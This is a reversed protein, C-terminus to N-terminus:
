LAYYYKMEHCDWDSMSGDVPTARPQGDLGFQWDDNNVLQALNAPKDDDYFYVPIDAASPRRQLCSLSTLHPFSFTSIVHTRLYTRLYILLVNINPAIGCDKSDNGTWDSM